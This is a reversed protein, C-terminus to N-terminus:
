RKPFTAIQLDHVQLFCRTFIVFDFSFAPVVQFVVIISNKKVFFCRAFTKGSFLFTKTPVQEMLEQMCEVWKNQYRRDCPNPLRPFLKSLSKISHSFFEM